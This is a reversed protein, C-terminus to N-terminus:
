DSSLELDFLHDSDVTQAPLPAPKQKRVMLIPIAALAFLAALKLIKM